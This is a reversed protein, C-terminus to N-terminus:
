RRERIQESVARHTQRQVWSHRGSEGAAAAAAEVEVGAGQGASISIFDRM